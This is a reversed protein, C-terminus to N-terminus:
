VVHLRALLSDTLRIREGNLHQMVSKVLSKLPRRLGPPTDSPSTSSVVHGHQCNGSKVGASRDPPSALEADIM